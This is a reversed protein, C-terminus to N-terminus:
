SRRVAMLKAAYQRFEVAAKEIAEAETTAEVEGIWTQKAALKYIVWRVSKPPEPKKTPKPPEPKKAMRCTDVALYTGELGASLGRDEPQRQRLRPRPGRSSCLATAERLLGVGACPSREQAPLISM